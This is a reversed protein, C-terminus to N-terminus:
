LTLIANARSRGKQHDSTIFSPPTRPITRQDFYKIVVYYDVGSIYKSSGNRFSSPIEIM